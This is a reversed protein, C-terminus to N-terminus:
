RWLQTSDRISREAHKPDNSHARAVDVLEQAKAPPLVKGAILGGVLTGAPLRQEHRASEPAQRLRQIQLDFLREAAAATASTLARKPLPFRVVRAAPQSRSTRSAMPTRYSLSAMKTFLTAGLNIYAHPDYSVYCLHSIDRCARDLELGYAQRLYQELAWFRTQYEADNSVIPVHVAFKVGAGSPSIFVYVVHPDCCLQTRAELLRDASLGDVDGQLLGSAQSLGASCRRHFIGAPTVAPLRDKLARYQPSKGRTQYEHRTREVAKRWRGACIDQIWQEVTTTEGGSVQTISEFFSILDM